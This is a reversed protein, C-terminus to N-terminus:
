VIGDVSVQADGHEHERTGAGLLSGKKLSLAFIFLILLFLSRIQILDNFAM